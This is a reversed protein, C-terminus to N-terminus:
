VTVIQIDRAIIHWYFHSDFYVFHRHKALLDGSLSNKRFNELFGSGIVEYVGTPLGEFAYPYNKASSLVDDFYCVFAVWSFYLDLAGSENSFRWNLDGNLHGSPVSVSGELILDMRSFNADNLNLGLM